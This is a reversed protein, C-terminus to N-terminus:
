RLPKREKAKDPRSRPRLTRTNEMIMKKNRDFFTRSDSRVVDEQFFEPRRWGATGISQDAAQIPGNILPQASSPPEIM